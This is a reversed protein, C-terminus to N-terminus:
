NWIKIPKRKNGKLMNKVARKLSQTELYIWLENEKKGAQYESVEYIKDLESYIIQMGEMKPKNRTTPEIIIENGCDSVTCVVGMKYLSDKLKDINMAKFKTQVRGV